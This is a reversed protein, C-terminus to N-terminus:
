KNLAAVLKKTPRIYLDSILPITLKESSTFRMML